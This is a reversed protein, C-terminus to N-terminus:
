NKKPIITVWEQGARIMRVFVDLRFRASRDPLRPDIVVIEKAVEDFTTALYAHNNGAVLVNSSQLTEVLFGSLNHIWYPEVTKLEVQKGSAESVVSVLKVPNAAFTRMRATQNPFSFWRGYKTVLLEQAAAAEEPTIAGQYIWGNLVSTPYCTYMGAAGLRSIQTM